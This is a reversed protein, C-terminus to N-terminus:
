LILPTQTLTDNLTLLAQAGKIELKPNKQQTPSILLLENVKSTGINEDFTFRFFNSAINTSGSDISTKIIKPPALDKEGGTLTQISACSFLLCSLFIYLKRM